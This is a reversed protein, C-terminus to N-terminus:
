MSSKAITKVARRADTIRHIALKVTGFAGDGIKKGLRYTDHISGDNFGVFQSAKFKVEDLTTAQKSGSSLGTSTRDPACARSSTDVDAPVKKSDGCGM